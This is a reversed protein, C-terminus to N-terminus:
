KGQNIKEVIHKINHKFFSAISEYKYYELKKLLEQFELPNLYSISNNKFSCFMIRNNVHDEDISLVPINETDYVVIKDFHIAM